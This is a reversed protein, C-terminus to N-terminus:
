PQVGEFFVAYAPLMLIAAIPIPLHLAAAIGSVVLPATVIALLTVAARAM